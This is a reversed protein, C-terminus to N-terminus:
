RRGTHKPKNIHLRYVTRTFISNKKGNILDSLGNTNLRLPINSAKLFKASELLIDLKCTPEGYGCYVIENYKVLNTTSLAAIVEELTPERDLWLSENQNM